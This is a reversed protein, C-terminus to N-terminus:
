WVLPGARMLRNAHEIANASVGQAGMLWDDWSSVQAQRSLMSIKRIARQLKNPDLTPDAQRLASVASGIDDAGHRYGVISSSFVSDVVEHEPGSESVAAALVLGASSVGLEDFGIEQFPVNRMALDVAHNSTYGVLADIRGSIFEEVGGYGVPYEDIESARIGALELSKHFQSYAASQVNVGVTGGRISHLARESSARIILTAPNFPLIPAARNINAGRALARVLNDSTTTGFTIAGSALQAAVAPAGSGHRIAATLGRELYYGADKALFFGYYEASPVWDITISTARGRSPACGVLPLFAAASAGYLFFRRTIANM